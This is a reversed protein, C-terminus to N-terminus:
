ANLKLYITYAYVQRGASPLHVRGMENRFPTIIATDTEANYELLRYIIKASNEVLVLGGAAAIEALKKMPALDRPCYHYEGPGIRVDTVIAPLKELRAKLDVVDNVLNASTNALAKAMTEMYTVDKALDAVNTM